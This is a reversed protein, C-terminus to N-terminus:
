QKQTRRSTNSDEEGQSEGRLNVVAERMAVGHRRVVTALQSLKNSSPAASKTRKPPPSSANVSKLAPEQRQLEICLSGARLAAARIVAASEAFEAGEAIVVVTSSDFSGSAAVGAGPSAGGVDSADSSVLVVRLGRDDAAEILAASVMGVAESNSLTVLGHGEGLASLLAARQADELPSASSHTPAFGFDPQKVDAALGVMREFVVQAKSQKAVLIAEPQRLIGQETHILEGSELQRIVENSIDQHPTAYGSCKIAARVLAFDGHIRKESQQVQDLAAGIAQGATMVQEPVGQTLRADEPAFVPFGTSGARLTWMKHIAELPAIRKTDSRSVLNAVEKARGSATGLTFGKVELAKEVSKLGDSFALIHARSYAAIEVGHEAVRYAIGLSNLGSALTQHMVADAAKRISMWRENELSMLRVPPRERKLLEAGSQDDLLDRQSSKARKATM